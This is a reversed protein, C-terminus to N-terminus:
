QPDEALKKLSLHKDMEHTLISKLKNARLRPMHPIHCQDPSKSNVLYVELSALGLIVDFFSNQRVFVNTHPVLHSSHLVKWIVGKTVEFRFGNIRVDISRRYMEWYIASLSFMWLLVRTAIGNYYNFSEVWESPYLATVQSKVVNGILFALVLSGFPWSKIFVFLISPKAIRNLETQTLLGLQLEESPTEAKVRTNMKELLKKREHPKYLDTGLTSFKWNLIEQKAPSNADRSQEAEESRTKKESLIKDRLWKLLKRRRRNKQRQPRIFNVRREMVELTISHNLHGYALAVLELM